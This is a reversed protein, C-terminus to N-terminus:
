FCNITQEIREFFSLFESIPYPAQSFEFHEYPCCHQLRQLVTAQMLHMTYQAVVRECTKRAM